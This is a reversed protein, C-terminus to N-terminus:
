SKSSEIILCHSFSHPTIPLALKRSELHYTHIPVQSSSHQSIGSCVGYGGDSSEGCQTTTVHKGTNGAASVAPEPLALVLCSDTTNMAPDEKRACPKPNELHRIYLQKLISLCCPEVTACLSSYEIGQLIRYHFLIQFLIHISQYIHIFSDSQQVGSVLM